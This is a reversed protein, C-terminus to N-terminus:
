YGSLLSVLGVVGATFGLAASWIMLRTFYRRLLGTLSNQYIALKTGLACSLGLLAVALAPQSVM